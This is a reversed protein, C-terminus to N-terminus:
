STAIDEFALICSSSIQVLFQVTQLSMKTEDKIKLKLERRGSTSDLIVERERKRLLQGKRV